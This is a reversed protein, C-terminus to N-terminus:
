ELKDELTGTMFNGLTDAVDGIFPGEPALLLSSVAPPNDSDLYMSAFGDGWIDDTGCHLIQFKKDEVFRIDDYTTTAGLIVGARLQKIAHVQPFVNAPVFGFVPLDYNAPAHRSTEYYAVPVTSGSSVYQWLNIRRLVGGSGPRPDNYTIFRGTGPSDDFIGDATKPRLRGLDFEYRLSRDELVEDSPDLITNADNGDSFSPGGPGSIPYAVDSSFGGLWFYLAEAGNMGTDVLSSSQVPNNVAGGALAFILEAPEQSRPFSKKFMRVFDNQALINVPTSTKIMGNPPYAGFENKLDEMAIGLQQLELTIEVQKARNLAKLAASTILGALIGIITIVVLLEVLTFASPKLLSVGRGETRTENQNWLM